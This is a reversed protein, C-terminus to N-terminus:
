FEIEDDSDDEKINKTNNKFLDSNDDLNFEKDYDKTKALINKIPRFVHRNLYDILGDADVYLKKDAFYECPRYKEIDAIKVGLPNLADGNQSNSNDKPTVNATDMYKRFTDELKDVPENRDRANMIELEKITLFKFTKQESLTDSKYKTCWEKYTDELWEYEEETYKKGWKRIIDKTVSFEEDESNDIIEISLGDSNLWGEDKYNLYIAGMYIGITEKENEQANKFEKSKFPLDFMRLIKKFKDVNIEKGVYLYEKMCEKCICYKGNAFLETKASKYFSSEPLMGNKEKCKKTLQMSCYSINEISKKNKTNAM